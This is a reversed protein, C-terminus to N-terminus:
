GRVEGAIKGLIGNVFRRSDESSLENAAEVAESVSVSAPVEPEDLLEYVSIRMISRDLATMRAVSWGEAHDELMRDIRELNEEVGKILERAFPPVSREAELWERVVRSPSAETVDAQYLIDLATRRAERRSTV